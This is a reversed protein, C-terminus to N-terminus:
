VRDYVRERCSARGIETINIFYPSAHSPIPRETKLLKEIDTDIYYFHKSIPNQLFIDWARKPTFQSLNINSQGNIM